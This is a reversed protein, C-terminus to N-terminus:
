ADNRRYWYIAKCAKCTGVFLSIRHNKWHLEIAYCVVETGKLASPQIQSGAPWMVPLEGAHCLCRFVLPGHRKAEVPGLFKWKRDMAFPIRVEADPRDFAEVLQHEPSERWAELFEKRTMPPITEFDAVNM